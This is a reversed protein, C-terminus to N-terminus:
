NSVGKGAMLTLQNCRTLRDSRQEHQQEARLSSDRSKVGHLDNLSAATKRERLLDLAPLLATSLRTGGEKNIM